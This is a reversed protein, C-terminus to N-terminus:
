NWALPLRRIRMGTAAFLANAVAPAVMPVTHEGFGGPPQASPLIHTEIVPSQDFRVVAYDRGGGVSMAATKAAARTEPSAEVTRKRGNVLLTYGPM